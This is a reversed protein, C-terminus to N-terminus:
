VQDPAPGSVADLARLLDRHAATFSPGRGRMAAVLTAPLDLARGAGAAQRHAEAFDPPVRLSWNEPGVTGPRNYIERLGLLDAFFIMVNSAPGVFLDALHARALGAPSAAV